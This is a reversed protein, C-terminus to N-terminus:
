YLEFCGVEANVISRLYVHRDHIFQRIAQYANQILKRRRDQNNGTYTEMRHLDDLLITELANALQILRDEALREDLERQLRDLYAQHFSAEKHMPQTVIGPMFSIAPKNLPSDISFNTLYLFLGNDLDWPVVEWRDVPPPNHFLIQNKHFADWNSVFVNVTDYILFSEKDIRNAITEARLSEDNLLRILEQIDDSSEYINSKKLFVNDFLKYINGSKDRGHLEFFRENPRQIVTRLTHKGAEIVRYWECEPCLIPYEKFLRYTFDEAVINNYANPLQTTDYTDTIKLNSIGDLTKGKMFKVKKGGMGNLVSAGDFVMPYEVTAPKIVVGSVCRYPNRLAPSKSDPPYLWLLPLCTPIEGDYVFYSVYPSPDSSHPLSVSVGDTRLIEFWCRILTQSPFPPIRYHFSINNVSRELVEMSFTGNFITADSLHAEVFLTVSKVIEPNDFSVEISVQENSYPSDPVTKASLLLPKEPTNVVTNDKMPSGDFLLSARWSHPDNSPLAASIRELSAGYGDAGRPWPSEDTYQIRDIERGDAARLVLTEGNDSLGGEFPGFIKGAPIKSSWITKEKVIIIYDRATIGSGQPFTYTIGQTFQCGSLDIDTDAPNYLEVFEPNKRDEFSSNKLRVINTGNPLKAPDNVSPLLLEFPIDESPHYHIENIVVNEGSWAKGTLLFCLGWVYARHM